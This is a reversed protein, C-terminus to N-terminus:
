LQRTLTAREAVEDKNLAMIHFIVKTGKGEESEICIGYKEGYILKIRKILNMIGYGGYTTEFQHALIKDVNEQSMGYGNDSVEVIIDNNQMRADIRIIKDGEKGNLGHLIANEVVPQFIHKITYYEKIEADINVVLQYTSYHAYENIKVYAKIMDIEDSIKIISNGKNLAARYYRTMQNIIEVAAKDNNKLASWKIVSLSNYLLHPNIRSQLLEIELLMNHTKFNLFDGYVNNIRTILSKFNNKLISIEDDDKVDIADTNLILDDNDKIVNIFDELSKTIRKSSFVSAYIVIFALLIMATAIVIGIKIYEFILVSEHIGAFLTDGNILSASYFIYDTDNEKPGIHNSSYYSFDGVKTHYRIVGKDPVGIENLYYEINKFPINIRLIGINTTALSLRRYFSLSDLRDGGKEHFNEWIIEKLSLKSLRGVLDNYEIKGLKEIFYSEFLDDDSVYIKVHPEDSGYAKVFGQLITELTKYFDYLQEINDGYKKSLGTIIYENSVLGNSYTLYMRIESNIIDACKNLRYEM